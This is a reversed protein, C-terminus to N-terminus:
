KIKISVTDSMHYNQMQHLFGEHSRIQHKQIHNNDIITMVQTLITGIVNYHKKLPIKHNM